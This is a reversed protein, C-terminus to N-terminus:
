GFFLGRLERVQKQFWAKAKSDKILIKYLDPRKIKLWDLINNENFYSAQPQYLTATIKSLELLGPVFYMLQKLSINRNVAYKLDKTSYNKLLSLVIKDLHNM